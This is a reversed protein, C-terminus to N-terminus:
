WVETTTSARLSRPAVNAEDIFVSHRITVQYLHRLLPRSYTKSKQLEAKREEDDAAVETLLLSSQDGLMFGLEHRSNLAPPLSYGFTLIM